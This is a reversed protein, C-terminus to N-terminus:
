VETALLSDDQYHDEIVYVASDGAPKTPSRDTEDEDPCPDCSKPPIPSTSAPSTATSAGQLRNLTRTSAYVCETSDLLKSGRASDVNLVKNNPVSLSKSDEATAVASNHTKQLPKELSNVVVLQGAGGSLKNNMSHHVANRANQRHVAEADARERWRRRQCVIAVAAVLVLVPVAVSATVILALQTASLREDADRSDGSGASDESVAFATLGPGRRASSGAVVAVRPALSPRQECRAGSFDPPCRCVFRAVGDVCVGGNLCPSLACEDLNTSCDKGSFGPPCHCAFDNVLDVCRGGNSCPSTLCDNVNTACLAGVFGPVCLCRFSDVGDVCTGGNGCPRGVCDDIDVECRPGSFGQRCTCQFRESPIDGEDSALSHCTGGNACPSPKCPNKQVECRTGVFADDCVCRFGAGIGPTDVCTGGNECPNGTACASAPLECHRGVLGLPCVCRYGREDSDDRECAAGNRCNSATGCPDLALQCDEGSFGPPCTCTYSGQGTNTCTGGHQCPRHNTCFNLDQNCFLGGWGEVCNCQWPQSCTGHLCGPYRTCQECTPGEWGIRCNCENPKDCDGQPEKCGPLCIAKSCYDGKWGPMCVVDGSASCTYHGFKDDRPRCLKACDGGYYHEECLVRFSFSLSSRESRLTDSTWDTGVELWRQTSLRSVLSRHQQSSVVGAAPASHAAGEHWAEIILSFTGPWSFEFPFRVPPQSANLLGGAGVLVPTTLEGYTCPSTTDVTKQYHKLCIRFSTRCASSPCSSGLPPPLGTSCCAGQADQGLLNSFARLQLEFVGSASVQHPQQSLLTVLLLLWAPTVRSSSWSTASATTTGTPSCTWRSRHRREYTPVM